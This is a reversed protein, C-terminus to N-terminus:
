KAIKYLNYLTWFGLIGHLYAPQTFTTESNVYSLVFALTIAFQFITLILFVAKLCQVNSMNLMGVLAVVGISIAAGGYMRSVLLSDGCHEIIPIQYPIILLAAGALFELVFTIILLLRM